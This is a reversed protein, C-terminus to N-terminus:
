WQCPMSLSCMSERWGVERERKRVCESERDRERMERVRM